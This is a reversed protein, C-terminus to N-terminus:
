VLALIKTVRIDLISTQYGVGAKNLTRCLHKAQLSQDANLRQVIEAKKFKEQMISQVTNIHIDKHPRTNEILLRKNAHM